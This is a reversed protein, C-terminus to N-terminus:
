SESGFILNHLIIPESSWLLSNLRIIGPPNSTAPIGMVGAGVYSAAPVATPAHVTASVSSSVAHGGHHAGSPVAAAAVSSSPPPGPAAQQQQQRAYMMAADPTCRAVGFTPLHSLSRTASRDVVETVSM